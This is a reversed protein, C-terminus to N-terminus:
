IELNINKFFGLIYKELWLGLGWVILGAGGTNKVVSHGEQPEWGTDSSLPNGICKIMVVIHLGFWLPKLFMNELMRKRDQPSIHLDPKLTPAKCQHLNFAVRQRKMRGAFCYM